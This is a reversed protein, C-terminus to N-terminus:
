DAAVIETILQSLRRPDIYYDDALPNRGQLPGSLRHHSYGYDASINKMDASVFQDAHLEVVTLRAGRRYLTNAMGAGHLAM